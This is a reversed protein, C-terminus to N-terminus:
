AAWTSFHLRRWAAALRGVHSAPFTLGALRWPYSFSLNFFQSEKTKIRDFIGNYDARCLQLPEAVRVYQFCEFLAAAITVTWNCFARMGQGSGAALKWFKLRKPAIRYPSLFPTLLYERRDRM